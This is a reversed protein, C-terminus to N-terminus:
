RGGEGVQAARVRELFEDAVKELDFDGAPRRDGDSGPASVSISHKSLVEQLLTGTTIERQVKLKM